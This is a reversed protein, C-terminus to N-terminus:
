TGRQMATRDANELLMVEFDLERLVAAMARADNVPNRLPAEAYASNGIVLAVRRDPNAHVPGAMFWSVLFILMLGLSTEATLARVADRGSVRGAGSKM